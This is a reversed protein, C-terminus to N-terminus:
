NKIFELYGDWGSKIPGYKTKTVILPDKIKGQFPVNINLKYLPYKNFMQIIRQHLDNNHTGIMWVDVKGNTLLTSAGILANVEAGQVDLNIVNIQPQGESFFLDNLCYIDTNDDNRKVISGGTDIGSRSPVFTARGKEKGIAGHVCKVNTRNFTLNRNLMKLNYPNPEIALGKMDKRQSYAQMIRPGWAAGIEWVIPPQNLPISKIIEFLRYRQLVDEDVVGSPYKDGEKIFHFFGIESDLRPTKSYNTLFM